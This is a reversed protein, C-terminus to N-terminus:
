AGSREQAPGVDTAMVKVVVLTMDDRHRGERTYEIVHEFVRQAMAEVNPARSQAQIQELLGERGLVRDNRDFAETMGDTFLVLTDGSRIARREDEYSAEPLVGLVIGHRCLSVPEGTSAPVVVPPEIGANACVMEGRDLDVVLYCMSIFAEPEGREQMEAAVERNIQTLVRAPSEERRAALRLASKFLPLYFLGLEEKARVDAVTLGWRRGGLPIVDYYDGSVAHAAPRFRFAIGLGPTAPLRRPRLMEDVHQAIRIRQWHERLAARSLLLEQREREQVETAISVVGATLLLFLVQLAVTGAPARSFGPPLPSSSIAWLYLVSAFLGVAFAGGRRFWLGGVIVVAFYMVFYREGGPGAFYIWLSILIADMVVIIPRPFSLRQMHLVFLVVNYLAAAITATVLLNGQMGRARVFQPSLVVILLFITRFVAVAIETDRRYLDVRSTPPAAPAAM